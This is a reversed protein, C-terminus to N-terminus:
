GRELEAVDGQRVTGPDVVVADVGFFVEGQVRRYGALTALVPTKDAGNEPDADVVACRPVTGRVLLTADGVRLRRGVWTDEVHPRVVRDDGTDVLFTPRFRASAVDHGLQESLLRMSATTLLTVSAGYVVEGPHVSRGLVVERGLHETFAESWPGEVRELAATRGWYDAKLEEGTPSPEGEVTRGPLDVSLVGADWRAVLSMLSSNEVTRLVRGRLPDVLCFMRDGVPGEADLEVLDRAVHRTGKLPTFGIREIRM